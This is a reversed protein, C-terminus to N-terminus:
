LLAQQFLREPELRSAARQKCRLLHRAGCVPCDLRQEPLSNKRPTTKQAFPNVLGKKQEALPGVGPWDAKLDWTSPIGARV